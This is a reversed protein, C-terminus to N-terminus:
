ITMTPQQQQQQQQGRSFMSMVNNLMQQRMYSNALGTVSASLNEKSGYRCRLYGLQLWITLVHTLLTALFMKSVLNSGSLAIGIAVLVLWQFRFGMIGTLLFVIWFAPALVLAAWFISVETASLLSQAHGNRAEFVWQSNGHQDVTNWWRLGVMIRGTVNKVTWFDLSLLLVVAVFLGIFSSSFWTGFLYVLLALSRFSIHALTVWPHPLAGSSSSPSGFEQSFDM